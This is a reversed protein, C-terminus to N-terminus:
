QFCYIKYDRAIKDGEELLMQEIVIQKKIGKYQLERWAKRFDIALWTNLQKKIAVRDIENKNQVFINYGSGHNCKIVFADPLTDFPIDEPNEGHWYQPILVHEGIKEKIYARVAHKDALQSYISETQHLKLWQIKETYYVPHKLRPFRGFKVFYSLYIFQRDSLLYGLKKIAQKITNPLVPLIKDFM